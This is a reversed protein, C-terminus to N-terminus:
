QEGPITKRKSGVDMSIETGEDAEKAMEGNKRRMISRLIIGPKNAPVTSDGISRHVWQGLRVQNYWEKVIGEEEM